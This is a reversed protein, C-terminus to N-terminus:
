KLLKLINVCETKEGEHEKQYRERQAKREEKEKLDQERMAKAWSDRFTLQPKNLIASMINDIYNPIIAKLWIAVDECKEKYDDYNSCCLNVDSSIKHFIKDIGLLIENEVQEQVEYQDVAHRYGM